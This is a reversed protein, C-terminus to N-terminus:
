FLTDGEFPFDEDSEPTTFKQEDDLAAEDVEQDQERQLRSTEHKLFREFDEGLEDATPIPEPNALLSPFKTDKDDTVADYQRELTSVVERAEANSALQREIEASAESARLTLDGIPLSLNVTRQLAELLGVAAHPYSAQALYQPVQAVLGIAPYGLESLRYELLAAASGPMQVSEIWPLGQGILDPESGHAGVVLPRTHPVSMPVGHLRVTLSVNLTDIAHRIAGVFGEWQVDPESGHLLLFPQGTSDWVADIALHPDEYSTWQSNEFTMVPRRSRYDILVDHNFTMVRRHELTQLIHSAAIRGASGADIFGQLAHVLVLGSPLDATRPMMSYLPSGYYSEFSEGMPSHYNDMGGGATRLGIFVERAGSM